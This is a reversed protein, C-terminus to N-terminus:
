EVIIFHFNYVRQCKSCKAKVILAINRVRVEKKELISKYLNEIDEGRGRFEIDLANLIEGCCKVEYEM